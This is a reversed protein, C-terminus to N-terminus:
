CPSRPSVSRSPRRVALILERGERATRRRDRDRSRPLSRRFGGGRIRECCLLGALRQCCRPQQAVVLLLSTWEHRWCEGIRALGDCTDLAFRRACRRARRALERTSRAITALSSWCRFPLSGRSSPLPATDGVGVFASRRSTARIHCRCVITSPARRREPSRRASTDARDHAGVLLSLQHRLLNNNTTTTSPSWLM